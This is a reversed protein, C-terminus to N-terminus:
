KRPASSTSSPNAKNYAKMFDETIETAPTAWVMISGNMAIDRDLVLVINNQRSYQDLFKNVKDMIPSVVEQGRKQFLNQYDESKRKLTKELDAGQEMWTNLVSPQVTKGQAQVKNKLDEIQKQLGALEQNKSEFEKNLAELKIKLEDIGVRFATTNILAIKGEAGIGGATKAASASSAASSPTQSTSRNGAGQTQAFALVSCLACIASALPFFRRRM